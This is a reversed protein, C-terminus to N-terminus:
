LHSAYQGVFYSLGGHHASGIAKFVWASDVRVFRGVELADQEGFKDNLDYRLIENGTKEDWVRIYCGEVMGFNLDLTRPDKEEDNPYKTITVVVAIEQVAADVNEFFIRMDEQDGDDDDDGGGIEDVAGMVSNDASIPREEEGYTTKNRSNFYVFDFPHDIQGNGNLLFASVDLDFIPGDPAENAQWGLGVGARTLGPASKSLDFTDGKSLNFSM